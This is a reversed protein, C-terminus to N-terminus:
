ANPPEFGDPAAVESFGGCPPNKTARVHRLRAFNEARADADRIPVITNKSRTTLEFRAETMGTMESLYVIGAPEPYPRSTPTQRSTM